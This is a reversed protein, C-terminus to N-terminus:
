DLGIDSYIHRSTALTMEDTVMHGHKLFSAHLFWVM